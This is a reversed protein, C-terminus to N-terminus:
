KKEPAVTIRVTEGSNGPFNTFMAEVLNPVVYQLRNSTSVAEAKGEFLRQGDVARDIKLDIGSTYITYSQISNDFFPDYWGYRWPGGWGFGRGYFGRGYFGGGYPGWAGWPGYGGMGMGTSRVRERGNDVGYNFRVILTAKAPDEVPTYGLKAMREGVLSAYQSFELGGSLKPDDAVIAFSQGQPAPLQTAFRSVDAKFPTACAALAMLLVAAAAMRLRGLQSGSHHTM